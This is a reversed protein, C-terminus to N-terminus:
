IPNITQNTARLYIAGIRRVVWLQGIGLVAWVTFVLPEEIGWRLSAVGFAAYLSQLSVLTAVVLPVSMGAERLIHHFHDRGSGFPSRGSVARRVFVTFLDFIPLAAFWLGHVPSIIRDNGQCISVTLWVVCLGLFTSGADGMFARYPRREGLPLNFVLYGAVAAAVVLAMSETSTGSGSVFAIAILAVMVMSGALGDLGDIMNYANIVSSFILATTLLAFPGLRITGIWLPNGIDRMVIDAGYVMILVAVFQAVLRLTAPLGFRDDVLGVVVLVFGATILLYLNAGEDPLLVLGVIVGLFMASGGIIPIEGVHRKRGGPRDVLGIAHALPRFVLMLLVTLLATTVIAALNM